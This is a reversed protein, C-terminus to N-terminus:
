MHGDMGAVLFAESEDEISDVILLCHEWKTNGRGQPLKCADGLLYGDEEMQPIDLKLCVYVVAKQVVLVREHEEMKLFKM